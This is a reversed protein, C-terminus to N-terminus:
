PHGAVQFTPIGRDRLYEAVATRDELAFFFSHGAAQYRDLIEGKMETDKRSDEDPRMELVDGFGDLTVGHTELYKLTDARSAEWRSTLFMIAIQEGLLRPRIAKLMWIVFDIPADDEMGQHWDIFSQGTVAMFDDWLYSQDFYGSASLPEKWRVNVIAQSAGEKESRSFVTGVQGKMVASRDIAATVSKGTFAPLKSNRHSSDAVTGDIDCVIYRL